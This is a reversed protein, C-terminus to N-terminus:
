LTLLTFLWGASPAAWAAPRGCCSWATAARPVAARSLGSGSAPRRPLLLTPTAHSPPCLAPPPPTSSCHWALGSGATCVCQMMSSRHCGAPLWRPAGAPKMFLLISAMPHSTGSALSRLAATSGQPTRPCCPPWAIANLLAVLHGAAACRCCCHCCCRHHPLVAAAWRTPGRGAPHQGAPAAPGRLGGRGAGGDAAAAASEAAGSSRRGGAWHAACYPPSPSSPAGMQQGRM